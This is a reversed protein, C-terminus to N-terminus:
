KFQQISAAVEPLALSSLRHHQQLMLHKFLVTFDAMKICLCSQGKFTEDFLLFNM